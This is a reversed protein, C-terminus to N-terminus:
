KSAQLSYHQLGLHASSAERAKHFCEPFDKVFQSLLANLSNPNQRFVVTLFLCDLKRLGSLCHQLHFMQISNVKSIKLIYNDEGGEGAVM